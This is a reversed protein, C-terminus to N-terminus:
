MKWTDDGMTKSYVTKTVTKGGETTKYTLYARYRVRLTKGKLNATPISINM